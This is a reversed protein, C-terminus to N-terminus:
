AIAARLADLARQRPNARWRIDKLLEALSPRWKDNRQWSGLARLVCDAPYATLERMMTDVALDDDHGQRARSATVALTRGLEEAIRRVARQDDRAPVCLAQIEMLAMQAAEVPMAMPLRVGTIATDFQGDDGM